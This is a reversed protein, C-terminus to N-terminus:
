LKRSLSQSIISPAKRQRFTRAFLVGMSVVCVAGALLTIANTKRAQPVQASGQLPPANSLLNKPKAPASDLGGTRLINAPSNSAASRNVLNTATSTKQLIARSPVSASPVVAPTNTLNAATVEPHSKSKEPVPKALTTVVRDAPNIIQNITKAPSPQTTLPDSRPTFIEVEKEVPVPGLVTVKLPARAPRRIIPQENQRVAAIQNTSLNKAPDPVSHNTAPITQAIHALMAAAQRLLSAYQEDSQNESTSVAQPRSRLVDATASNLFDTRWSTFAQNRIELQTLLPAKNGMKRLDSWRKNIADDLPLGKLSSDGDTLLYVICHPSVQRVNELKSLAPKFATAGTFRQELIQQAALEAHLEGSEAGWTQVPFDDVLGNQNVTWVTFRDGNQLVGECGSALYVRLWEIIAPRKSLMSQSSDVLFLVKYNPRLEDVEDQATISRTLLLLLLIAFAFPNM